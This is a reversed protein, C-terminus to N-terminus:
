WITYSSSAVNMPAKRLERTSIRTNGFPKRRRSCGYNKLTGMPNGASKAVVRDRGVQETTTLSAFGALAHCFATFVTGYRYSLFILINTVAASQVM